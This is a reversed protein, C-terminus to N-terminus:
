PKAGRAEQVPGRWALARRGGAPMARLGAEKGRDGLFPGHRHSPAGRGGPSVTQPAEGRDRGTLDPAGWLRQKATVHGQLIGQVGSVQRPQQLQERRVARGVQQQLAPRALRAPAAVLPTLPRPPSLTSSRPHHPLSVADPM